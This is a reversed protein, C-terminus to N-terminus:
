SPPGVPTASELEGVSRRGSPRLGRRDSSEARAARALAPASSRSRLSRLWGPWWQFMNMSGRGSVHTGDNTVSLWVTQDGITGDVWSRDNVITLAVVDIGVMGSAAKGDDTISLWVADSGIMGSAAKGDDTISLWVADSGIMGSAAKGDDTISLWVLDRGVMGNADKGDNTISVGTTRDLLPLVHIALQGLSRLLALVEGRRTWLRRNSM